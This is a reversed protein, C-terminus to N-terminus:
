LRYSPGQRSAAGLLKRDGGAAGITGIEWHDHQRWMFAIRDGRPSWAPSVYRQDTGAILLSEGGVETVYLGGYGKYIVRRGDPAWSPSFAHWERPLDEIQHTDVDLVSLKWQDDDKWAFQGLNFDFIIKRGVYKSYFAVKNGQPSWVLGLANELDVVRAVEGGDADMVYIGPPYDWQAFAVRRGDPSWSPSIGQGIRQLNSGDASVTYIAGGTAEQFVLRGRNAAAEGAAAAPDPDGAAVPLPYALAALLVLSSILLAKSARVRVRERGLFLSCPVRFLAYPVRLLDTM